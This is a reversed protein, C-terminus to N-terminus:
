KEETLSKGIKVSSVTTGSSFSGLNGVTKCKTIPGVKFKEELVNETGRIEKQTEQLQMETYKAMVKRYDIELSRQRFLDELDQLRCVTSNTEVPASM